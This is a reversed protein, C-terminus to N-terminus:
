SAAAITQSQEANYAQMVADFAPVECAPGTPVYDASQTLLYATIANVTEDPMAEDSWVPMVGAYGPVLYALSNNVSTYIYEEGSAVGSANARADARDAIGNLSPGVQGVWGLSDLAHCGACGYNGQGSALIQQGLVAPDEPPNVQCDAAATSWAMYSEENPYVLIEARMGGHGGGCLETCVVPYRGPLIPTFRLETQRGPLLDQKVRMSPIWFAHIVDQANMVLRVPRGVYTRLVNDNVPATQVEGTAKNVAAGEYEFAFAYRQGVVNVVLENDQPARTSVFVQYSYITLIFVTITPILTWIFELAANGHVNAADTEDGARKRYFIVVWVVLGQVLLFVMGGIYMLTYMLADVEQAQSSAQVGMLWPTIGAIVWGGILLLVTVITVAVVTSGRYFISNSTM